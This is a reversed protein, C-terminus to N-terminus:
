YAGGQDQRVPGQNTSSWPISSVVTDDVIAEGLRGRLEWGHPILLCITGLPFSEGAPITSTAPDPTLFNTNVGDTIELELVHPISDYNFLALPPALLPTTLAKAEGQAPAPNLAQYSTTLAVDFREVNRVDSWSASVSVAGDGNAFRIFVGEDDSTMYFVSSPGIPVASDVGVAATGIVIERGTGDKYVLEADAAVAGGVMVVAICALSDPGVERIAGAPPPAILLVETDVALSPVLLSDGGLTYRGIGPLPHGNLPQNVGSPNANPM